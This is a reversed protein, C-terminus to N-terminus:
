PDMGGAPVPSAMEGPKFPSVEEINTRNHAMGSDYASM